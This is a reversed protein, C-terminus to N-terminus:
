NNNELPLIDSSSPIFYDNGTGSTISSIDSFYFQESMNGSNNGTLNFTKGTNFGILSNSKGSPALFNQINAFSSFYGGTTSGANASTLTVTLTSTTSSLNLTNSGGGGDLIGSLSIGDSFVFSDNGSGGTLYRIETFSLGNEELIERVVDESIKEEKELRELAEERSIQHDRLLNSLNFVKDNWGFIGYYAYLKLLAVDCDGRWTSSTRPDKGWGM